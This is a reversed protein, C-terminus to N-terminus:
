DDFGAVPFAAEAFDVDDGALTVGQHEDFDAGPSLGGEAASGAANIRALAVTQFKGGLLIETTKGGKRWAAKIGDQEFAM